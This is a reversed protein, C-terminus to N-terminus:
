KWNENCAPPLPPKEIQKSSFGKDDSKLPKKPSPGHHPVATSQLSIADDDDDDDGDDGNDDYEQYGRKTRTGSRTKPRLSRHM